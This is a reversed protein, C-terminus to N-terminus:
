SLDDGGGAYKEIKLLKNSNSLWEFTFRLICVNNPSYLLNLYVAKKLKNEDGLMNTALAGALSIDQTYM